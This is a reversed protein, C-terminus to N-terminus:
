QTGCALGRYVQKGCDMRGSDEAIRGISKLTEDLSKRPCPIVHFNSPPLTLRGPQTWVLSSSHNAELVGGAFRQLVAGYVGYKM